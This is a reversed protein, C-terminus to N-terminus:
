PIIGITLYTINGFSIHNESTGLRKLASKYAAWFLLIGGGGAALLIIVMTWVPLGNYELYQYLQM